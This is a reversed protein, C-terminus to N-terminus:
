SVLGKVTDIVTVFGTVLCLLGIVLNVVQTMHYFIRLHIEKVLLHHELSRNFNSLLIIGFAVAMMGVFLIFYAQM